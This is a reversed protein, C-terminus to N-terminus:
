ATPHPSTRRSWANGTSLYPEVQPNLGGGLRIAVSEGELMQIEGDKLDKSYIPTPFGRHVVHYELVAELEEINNPDLLSELRGVPLAAFAENTPAFITFPGPASLADTLNAAKLARVLTSLQPVASAIELVSMNAGGAHQSGERPVAAASLVLCGLASVRALMLNNNTTARQAGGREACPGDDRSIAANLM